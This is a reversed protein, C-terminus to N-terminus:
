MGKKLLETCAIIYKYKLLVDSLHTLTTWSVWPTNIICTYPMPFQCRKTM